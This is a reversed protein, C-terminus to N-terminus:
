CYSEDVMGAFVCGAIGTLRQSAATVEPGPTVGVEVDGAVVVVELKGSLM